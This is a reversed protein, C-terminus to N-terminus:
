DSLIGFSTECHCYVGGKEKLNKKRSQSVGKSQHSPKFEVDVNAECAHAVIDM